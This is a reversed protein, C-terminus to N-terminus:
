SFKGVEDVDKERERYDQLLRPFPPLIITFALIDLLLSIFVIRTTRSELSASLDNTKSVSM